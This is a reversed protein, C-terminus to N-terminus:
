LCSCPAEEPYGVCTCPDLSKPWRQFENKKINPVDMNHTALCINEYQYKMDLHIKAHSHKGTKSPLCRSSRSPWARLVVFGNKPSAYCQMLFTASAGADGTELDLDDAM